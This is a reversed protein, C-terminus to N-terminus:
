WLKSSLLVKFQKLVDEVKGEIASLRNEDVGHQLFQSLVHCHSAENCQQTIDELESYYNDIDILLNSCTSM